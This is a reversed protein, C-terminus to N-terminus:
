IHILSLHQPEKNNYTINFSEYEFGSCCGADIECTKIHFNLRLTDVDFGGVFSTDPLFLLFSREVDRGPLASRDERDIPRFSIDGGGGIDTWRDTWPLLMGEATELRVDDTLYKARYDAIVSDDNEDVLRFSLNYDFFIGIEEECPARCSSLFFTFFIIVSILYKM